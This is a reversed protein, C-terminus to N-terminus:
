IKIKTWFIEIPGPSPNQLGRIPWQYNVPKTVQQNTVQYTAADAMDEKPIMSDWKADVAAMNQPAEEVVVGPPLNSM